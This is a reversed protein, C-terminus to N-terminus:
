DGRQHYMHYKSQATSAKEMLRGHQRKHNPQAKISGDLKYTTYTKIRKTSM